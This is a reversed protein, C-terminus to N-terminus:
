SEEGKLQTEIKDLEYRLEGYERLLEDRELSLYDIFREIQDRKIEVHYMKSSIVEYESELVKKNM